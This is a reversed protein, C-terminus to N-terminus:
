TIKFQPVHKRIEAAIEDPTFSMASLNYVRQTLGAEPAELFEVIARVQM